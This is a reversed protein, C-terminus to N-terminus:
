VALQAVKSAVYHRLEAVHTDAMKGFRVDTGLPLNPLQLNGPVNAFM